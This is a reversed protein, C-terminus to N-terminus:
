VSWQGKAERTRSSPWHGRWGLLEVGVLALPAGRHWDAIYRGEPHRGNM